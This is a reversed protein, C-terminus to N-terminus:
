RFLPLETRILKCCGTPPALTSKKPQYNSPRKARFALLWWGGWNASINGPLVGQIVKM